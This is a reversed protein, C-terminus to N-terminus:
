DKYTAELSKYKEKLKGEQQHGIQKALTNSMSTAHDRWYAYFGNIKLLPWHQSIRTWYDWDEVCIMEPDFYGIKNFCEKRFLFCCGVFNGGKIQEFTYKGVRQVIDVERSGFIKFQTSVLGVDPNDELAKLMVEFAKPDYYSDSSMWTIYDGGAKDLGVNLTRPLKLNTKNHIIKIRSDTSAYNELIQATNDASCDNIVILEFDPFSQCLISNVSQSLYRSQNYTPLICTIKM